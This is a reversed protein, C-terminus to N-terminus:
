CSIHFEMYLTFLCECEARCRCNRQCYQGAQFCGCRSNADECPGKHLCPPVRPDTIEGGDPNTARGDQKGPNNRFFADPIPPTDPEVAAPTPKPAKKQRRSSLTILPPSPPPSPSPSPPVFIGQLIKRDPFFQTRYM